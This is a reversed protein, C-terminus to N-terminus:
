SDPIFFSAHLILFSSYLLGRFLIPVAEDATGLSIWTCARLPDM